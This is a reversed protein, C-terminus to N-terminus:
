RRIAVKGAQLYMKIVILMGGREVRACVPVGSSGGGGGGAARLAPFENRGLILDIPALRRSLHGSSLCGARASCNTGVISSM